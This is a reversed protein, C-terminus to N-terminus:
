VPPAASATGVCGAGVCVAYDRGEWRGTAPWYFTFRLPARQAAILPIDVYHVSLGTPTSPTDESRQWEDKTWHLLFECTAQIRLTGPATM